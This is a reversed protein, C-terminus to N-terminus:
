YNFHNTDLAHKSCVSFDNENRRRIKRRPSIRNRIVEKRAKKPPM